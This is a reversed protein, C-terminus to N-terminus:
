KAENAQPWWMGASQKQEGMEKEEVLDKRRQRQPYLCKNSSDPSMWIIWSSMKIKFIHIKM